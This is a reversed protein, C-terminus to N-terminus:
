KVRGLRMARRAREWVDMSCFSLPQPRPDCLVMPATNEGQKKVQIYLVEVRTNMKLAEIVINLMSPTANSPLYRTNWCVCM